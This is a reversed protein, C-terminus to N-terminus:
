VVPDIQFRNSDMNTIVDWLRPSEQSIKRRAASLAEDRDRGEVTVQTFGVTVKYHQTTTIAPENM